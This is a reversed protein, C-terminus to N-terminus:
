YVMSIHFFIDCYYLLSSYYYCHVNRSNKNHWGIYDYTTVWNIKSFIKRTIWLSDGNKLQLFQPQFNRLISSTKCSTLLVQSEFRSFTDVFDTRKFVVNYQKLIFRIPFQYHNWIPYFYLKFTLFGLKQEHVLNDAQRKKKKGKLM